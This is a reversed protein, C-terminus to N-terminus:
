SGCYMDAWIPFVKGRVSSIVIFMGDIHKAVIQHFTGTFPVYVNFNFTSALDHLNSKGVDHM